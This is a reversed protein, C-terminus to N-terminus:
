APRILRLPLLSFASSNELSRIPDELHFDSLGLFFLLGVDQGLLKPGLVGENGGEAAHFELVGVDQAVIQAGDFGAKTYYAIGYYRM